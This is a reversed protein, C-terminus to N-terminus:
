KCCPGFGLLDIPDQLDILAIEITTCRVVLAMYSQQGRSTIITQCHLLHLRQLCPLTMSVLLHSSPSLKKQM